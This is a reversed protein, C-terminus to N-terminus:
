NEPSEPDYVVDMQHGRQLYVMGETAHAHAKAKTLDSTRLVKTFDSTVLYM